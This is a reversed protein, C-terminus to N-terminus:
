GQLIALVRRHEEELIQIAKGVGIEAAVARLLDEAAAAERPRAPAPPPAEAPKRSRAARRAERKEAGKGAAAARKRRPSGARKAVTGTGKASKIKAASRIKIVALRTLEIGARKAEAVVETAPMETPQSLVFATKNMPKKATQPKEPPAAKGTAGKARKRARTQIRSVYSPSIAIGAARAKAVVEVPRTDLPLSRVFDSKKNSEDTATDAM